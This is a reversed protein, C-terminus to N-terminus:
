PSRWFTDLSYRGAGAFLLCLAPLAYLLAFEKKSWPDGDHVMFAAVLMTIVFPISALRTFLGLIILLPAVVEGVIALSLSMSSGVGLPDPFHASKVSFGMLKPWGHGFLMFAGVSVRLFLLGLDTGSAANEISADSPKVTPGKDEESLGVDPAFGSRLTNEAVAVGDAFQQLYHPGGAKGGLGSMKFGGFPHREVIAGTCGRNIYLNGVELDQRAQAIRAPSRSFLGATLAYPTANVWEIAQEFSEARM